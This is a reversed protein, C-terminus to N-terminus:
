TAPMDAIMMSFRAERSWSRPEASSATSNKPNPINATTPARSTAFRGAFRIQQIM